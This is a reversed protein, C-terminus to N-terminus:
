FQKEKGNDIYEQIASIPLGSLKCATVIIKSKDKEMTMMTAENLAYEIEKNQQDLHM